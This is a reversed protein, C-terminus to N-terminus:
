NLFVVLLDSFSHASVLILKFIKLDLIRFYNDVHLLLDPFVFRDDVLIALINRVKLIEFVVGVTLM